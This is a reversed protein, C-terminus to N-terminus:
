MLIYLKLYADDISHKITSGFAIVSFGSFDFNDMDFQLARAM